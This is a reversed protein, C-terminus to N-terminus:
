DQIWPLGDAKWGATTGRHRAGDHPGEFGGALNYCHRYGLATAAVAASRSRGGSRCIFVLPTAPDPVQTRLTTGFLANPVMSPTADPRWDQWAILVPRKGLASLDALGVFTWEPRSRVDVLLAAADSALLEWAQRPALDGAYAEAMQASM